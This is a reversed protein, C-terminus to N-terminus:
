KNKQLIGAIRERIQGFIVSAKHLGVGALIVFLPCFLYLYRSRCEFLLLFCSVGLLTISILLEGKSRKGFTGICVCLLVTLWLMQAFTAYYAHYSPEIDNSYYVSQLFHAVSNDSQEASIYFNGEGGWFFLGDNYTLLNKSVLHKFFGTGGMDKVREFFVNINEQSRTKPDPMSASFDVDAQSFVGNTSENAGMMLFHASGFAANEDYDTQDILKVTVNALVFLAVASALAACSIGLQKWNCKRQLLCVTWRCLKILLFAIFLILVTPKILYGLLASAAIAFPKWFPHKIYLYAFVAFVPFIMAFTDSYTVIMWPCLAVLLVGIGMSVVTTLRSKTIKYVCLTALYVSACVILVSVGVLTFDIGKTTFLGALKALPLMLYVLTLNNQYASFYWHAFGDTALVRSDNKAMQEATGIVLGVDWGTRFYICGAIVAQLLLVGGFCASLIAIFRKDSMATQKTEKKRAAFFIWASLAILAAASVWILALNPLKAHNQPIYTTINQDVFVNILLTAALFFGFLSAGWEPLRQFASAARGSLPLNEKKSPAKFVYFKSIVYNLAIVVVNSLVKILLGNYALIDVFILMVFLDLLGTAIRGSFFQVSEGLIEGKTKAHSEFVFLRNTVFAFLVSLFWALATAATTGLGIKSCVVYVVINVLTTCGGFFIYLILEKYRQFLSKLKEMM